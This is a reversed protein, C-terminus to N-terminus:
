KLNGAKVLTLREARLADLKALLEAREVLVAMGIPSSQAVPTMRGLGLHIERLKRSVENIDFQIAELDRM